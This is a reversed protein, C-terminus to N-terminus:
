WNGMSWEAAAEICESMGISQVEQRDIDRCHIYKIEELYFNDEVVEWADERKEDSTGDKFSLEYHSPWMEYSPTIECCYTRQSRDFVYVTETKVIHHKSLLGEDWGSTDDVKVRHYEQETVENM